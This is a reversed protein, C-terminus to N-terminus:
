KTKNGTCCNGSISSVAKEAFEAYFEYRKAELIDKQFAKAHEFNRKSMNMVEDTSIKALHGAIADSDKKEFICKEGVLEPIAGVSSALCPLGRSMAEILARPMAEVVSPQIYVDMDDLWAFMKDHPLSGEFVVQEEVKLRQALVKLSSNDGGGAMHYEFNTIGREKLKALAEIVYRQGKYSVNVAAATALKVSGSHNKIKELRKELVSDDVPQLEVDSIAAAKGHTPYRRQLFEDTVYVAYDAHMMTRRFRMWAFPALVKGRLSHNWLSDWPCGVAEVLFPKGISRCYKAAIAGSDSPARIIVARDPTINDIVIKKFRRRLKINFFSRLSATPNPLLVVNIRSTDLKNMRGLTEADDPAVDAKRMLLTIRDFHQLYRDFVAQSFASGTYYNGDTDQAIKDEYVFVLDM